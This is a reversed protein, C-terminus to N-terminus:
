LDGTINYKSILKETLKMQFEMRSISSGKKKTLFCSNLYCIGILRRFHKHYYKKLRKRTSHYRTSYADSLEVHGM